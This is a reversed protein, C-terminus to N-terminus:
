LLCQQQLGQQSPSIAWGASTHVVQGSQELTKLANGVSLNRAKVMARLRTQSLPTAAQRLADILRQSLPKQSTESQPDDIDDLLCLHASATETQEVLALHFPKKPSPASRHEISLSILNESRHLYLTVDNWAHFDGSGRLAQGPRQPSGNKRAHHVVVIATGHRRQLLRLEGLVASVDAASNEDIAHYLRVFPDLVLLVPKQNRLTSDLRRRDKIADLRIGTATIVGLNLKQLAIHHRQCIAHLRARIDALSDEAAYVLVRGPHKVSFSELCRAGSAVAVAIELALWTKGAKACGGIIGVGGRPWLDDVLWRRAEDRKPLASAACVRFPRISRDTDNM